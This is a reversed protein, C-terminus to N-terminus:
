ASKKVLEWDHEIWKAIAKEDREIARAEPKQPSLGLRTLIRGIHDVHYRIGFKKDILDAVRPCDWLDTDFGHRRPGQILLRRLQVHQSPTMFRPRGSMPQAKLAAEGGARYLAMWKEIARTTVRMERALRGQSIEGSEIRRVAYLRRAEMQEATGRIHM